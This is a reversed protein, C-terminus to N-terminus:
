EQVDVCEGTGQSSGLQAKRVQVQILLTLQTVSLVSKCAPSPTDGRETHGGPAGAQSLSLELFHSIHHVMPCVGSDPVSRPVRPKQRLESQSPSLPGRQQMNGPHQQLLPRRAAGWGERPQRRRPQLLAALDQEGTRCASTFQASSKPLQICQNYLEWNYRAHAHLNQFTYIIHILQWIRHTMMNGLKSALGHALPRSGYILSLLDEGQARPHPRQHDTGRPNPTPPLM